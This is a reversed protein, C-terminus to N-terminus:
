FFTLYLLCVFLNAINYITDCSRILRGLGFFDVEEVVTVSAKVAPKKGKALSYPVFGTSITRQQKIEEGGGEISNSVGGGLAKELKVAVNENKPAPLMMALGGMGSSAGPTFKPKKKVPEDDTPISSTSSPPPLDLLIRVPGKARKFPLAVKPPPLSAKPPPLSLTSTSAKPQISPIMVATEGESDSGSSGYDVLGM